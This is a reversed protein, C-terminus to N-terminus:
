TTVRRNWMEAAEQASRYFDTVGHRTTGIMVRCSKCAVAFCAINVAQNMPAYVM